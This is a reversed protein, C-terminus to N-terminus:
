GAVPRWWQYGRESLIETAKQRGSGTYVVYPFPELYPPGHHQRDRWLRTRIDYILRTQMETIIELSISKSSRELRKFADLGTSMRIYDFDVLKSLAEQLATLEEPVGIPDVITNLLAPVNEEGAEELVALIRMEWESFIQM